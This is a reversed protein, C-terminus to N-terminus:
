IRWMRQTFQNWFWVCCVTHTHTHWHTHIQVRPHWFSISFYASVSEVCVKRSRWCITSQIQTTSHHWVLLAIKLFPESSPQNKKERWGGGLINNSNLAKWGHVSKERGTEYWLKPWNPAEEPAYVFGVNYMFVCLWVELFQLQMLCQLPHSTHPFLVM